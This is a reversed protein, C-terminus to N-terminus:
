VLVPVNAHPSYDAHQGTSAAAAPECVGADGATHVACRGVPEGDSGGVRGRVYGGGCRREFGPLRQASRQVLLRDAGAGRWHRLRARVPHTAYNHQRDASLAVPQTRTHGPRELAAFLCSLWCCLVGACHSLLSLLGAVAHTHARAHHSHLTRAHRVLICSFFINSITHLDLRLTYSAINVTPTIQPNYMWSKAYLFTPLLLFDGSDRAEQLRSADVNAPDFFAINIEASVLQDFALQDTTETTTWIALSNPDTYLPTLLGALFSISSPVSMTRTPTTTATYAPVGRCLVNSQINSIINLSTMVIDPVRAYQRTAILNSAIDSQYYWLWFDVIATRAHCTSPSNVSDLVLYSMACIPWTGSGSADTLDMVITSRAQAQIGLEVVAYTVSDSNARVPMGAQNVMAAINSNMSLAVSLAAYGIAGDHAVVAAAVAYPGTVGVAEAYSGIAWNPQAGHTATDPTVYQTFNADFKALATTLVTNVSVPEAHYVVAIAVAPLAISPNTAKIRSDNWWTLRGEYIAALAQRSLTLTVGAATVADLRYIPVIATALIPYMAVTPSAVVQADTLGLSTTGFDVTLQQVNSLTTVASQQSTTITVDPKQLRYALAVDHM